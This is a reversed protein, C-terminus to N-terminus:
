PPRGQHGWWECAWPRQGVHEQNADMCGSRQDRGGERQRWADSRTGLPRHCPGPQAVPCDQRQQFLLGPARGTSAPGYPRLSAPGGWPLRRGVSGAQGKAQGWPDTPHAGPHPGRPPM